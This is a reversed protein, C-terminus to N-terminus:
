NIVIKKELLRQKYTTCLLLFATELAPLKLVFICKGILSVIVMLTPGFSGMEQKYSQKYIM